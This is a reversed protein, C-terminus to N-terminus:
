LRYSNTTFSGVMVLKKKSNTRDAIFGIFFGSVMRGIVNSVVVLSIQFASAGMNTRSIIPIWFGIFFFGLSNLIIIKLMENFDSTFREGEAKLLKM